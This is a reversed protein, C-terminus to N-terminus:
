PELAESLEIRLQDEVRDSVASPGGIIVADVGPQAASVVGAATAAPLSDERTLLLCGRLRALYPGAVLADPFREGSAVGVRVHGYNGSALSHHIAMEAATAYRDVGSIRGVHGEGTEILSYLALTLEREIQESVAQTGGVIDVSQNRIALTKTLPDLVDSRTLLIPRGSRAAEYSCAAADAFDDGRVLFTPGLGNDIRYVEQAVLRSTAYRDIGALRRVESVGDIRAMADEAEPSIAAEGGIIYVTQAGLREIESQVSTLLAGVPNLLIPGRVAGALGAACIADPFDAGTAVVVVDASGSAWANRSLQVATEYRDSGSVRDLAFPERDVVHTLRYEYPADQSSILELYYTGGREEPVLYTLFRPYSAVDDLHEMEGEPGFLSLSGHRDDSTECLLKLRDGGLLEVSFCDALVGATTIDSADLNGLVPSPPLPVGPYGAPPEFSAGASAPLAAVALSVALGGVLVRARVAGGGLM